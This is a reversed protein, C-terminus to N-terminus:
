RDLAQSQCQSKPNTFRYTCYTLQPYPPSVMQWYVGKQRLLDAHNGKELLKGEGLVFIVDANQVTALAIRWSSCPAARAPASLRPRSSANARRTSRAPPRTSCCSTRTASSPAPSPSASSRAARSPSARPASTPATATPYRSSSTTSPPTAAPRTCSPTPSPRTTSVSSSTKGSLAQVPTLLSRRIVQGLSLM